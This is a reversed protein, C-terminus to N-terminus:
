ALRETIWYLRLYYPAPELAKQRLWVMNHEHRFRLRTQYGPPNMGRLM